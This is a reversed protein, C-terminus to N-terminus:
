EVMRRLASELAADIGGAEVHILKASLEALLTEFLLRDELVRQARRGAARHLLLWVVVATEVLIMLMAAIVYPTLGM